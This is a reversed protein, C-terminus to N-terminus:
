FTTREDLNTLFSTEGEFIIWLNVFFREGLGVLLMFDTLLRLM